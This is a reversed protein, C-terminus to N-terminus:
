LSRPAAPEAYCPVLRTCAARVPNDTIGDARPTRVWVGIAITLAMGFGISIDWTLAVDM